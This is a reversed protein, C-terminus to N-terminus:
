LEDDSEDDDEIGGDIIEVVHQKQRGTQVDGSDSVGGTRHTSKKMANSM